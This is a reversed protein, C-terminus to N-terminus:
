AIAWCHGAGPTPEPRHGPRRHAFPRRFRAPVEQDARRDPLVQWVWRDGHDRPGPYRGRYAQFEFCQDRTLSGAELATIVRALAGAQGAALGDLSRVEAALNVDCEDILTNVMRRWVSANVRPPLFYTACM